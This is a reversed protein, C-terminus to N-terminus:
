ICTTYTISKSVVVANLHHFHDIMGVWNVVLFGDVMLLNGLIDFVVM